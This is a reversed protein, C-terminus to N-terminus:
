PIQFKEQIQAPTHTINPPLRNFSLLFDLYVCGRLLLKKEKKDELTGFHQYVNQVLARSYQNQYISRLDEYRSDKLAEYTMRYPVENIVEAPLLKEKSYMSRRKKNAIINDKRLEAQDEAIHLAREAIRHDRLGKNQQNTMGGEDVMNTMMSTVKKNSKKTGFANVLHLKQNMYTMSKLAENDEEKGGYTDLFGEIEQTFQYATNVKILHVKNEQELFIGLYYDSAQDKKDLDHGYNRAQYKISSGNDKFEAKVM